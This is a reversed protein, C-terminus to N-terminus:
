REGKGGPAKIARDVAQRIESWKVRSALSDLRKLGLTKQGGLDDDLTKTAVVWFAWTDPDAVNENTAPLSEHLCFVYVDAPRNPPDNKIWVGSRRCEYEVGEPLNALVAPAEENTLWTWKQGAITFKPITANNPNWTVSYGSAKVEVKVDGHQLDFSDWEVRYTDPDICGLADGVMWEAFIGRNRNDALNGTAWRRFGEINLGSDGVVGM